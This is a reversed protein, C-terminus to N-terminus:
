GFGGIAGETGSVLLKATLELWVELGKCCVVCGGVCEKVCIGGDLGTDDSGVIICPSKLGCNGEDICDFWKV